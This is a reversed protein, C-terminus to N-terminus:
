KALSRKARAYKKGSLEWAKEYYQPDRRIDGLLCLIAPKQSDDTSSDLAEQAMESAQTHRGAGFLCQIADEKLDIQKLLEFASM